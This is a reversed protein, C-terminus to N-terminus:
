SHGVVIKAETEAPARHPQLWTGSTGGVRRWTTNGPHHTRCSPDKRPLALGDQQHPFRPQNLLLAPSPYPCVEYEAEYERRYGGSGAAEVPDVSGLHARCAKAMWMSLGRHALRPTLPVLWAREGCGIAIIYECAQPQPDCTGVRWSHVPIAGVSFAPM